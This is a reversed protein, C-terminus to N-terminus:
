HILFLVPLAIALIAAVVGCLFGDKWALDDWKRIRALEEQIEKGMQDIIDNDM